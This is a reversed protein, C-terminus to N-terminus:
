VRGGSVSPKPLDQAIGDIIWAIISQRAGLAGALLYVKARTIPYEQAARSYILLSLEKTSTARQRSLM